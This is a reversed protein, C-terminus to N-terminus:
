QRAQSHRRGAREIAADLQREEEELRRIEEETMGEEVLHAYRSAIPQQQQPQRAAGTESGPGQQQQERLVPSPENLSTLTPTTVATGPAVVHDSYPAYPVAAAAPDAHHAVPASSHDYVPHSSSETLGAAEKEPMMAIAGSDSGYGVERARALPSGSQRRRLCFWVSLGAVAIFVVGISVAIGAIAGAGLGNRSQGGSDEVAPTATDIGAGLSPSGSTPSPTPPPSSRTSVDTTTPSWHVEDQKVPRPQNNLMRIANDRLSEDNLVVFPPSYGTGAHSQNRLDFEMYLVRVNWVDHLYSGEPDLELVTYNIGDPLLYTMMPPLDSDERVLTESSDIAGKQRDRFHVTMNSQAIRNDDEGDRDRRAYLYVDTVALNSDPAPSWSIWAEPLTNVFIPTSFSQGFTIVPRVPREPGAGGSPASEQGSVVGLLGAFLGIKSADLRM